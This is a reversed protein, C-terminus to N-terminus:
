IRLNFFSGRPEYGKWTDPRQKVLNVKLGVTLGNRARPDHWPSPGNMSPYADKLGFYICRCCVIKRWFKNQLLPLCTQSMKGTNLLDSHLFFMAALWIFINNLIFVLCNGGARKIKAQWSMRFPRHWTSKTDFAFFDWLQTKQYYKLCIEPLTFPNQLWAM